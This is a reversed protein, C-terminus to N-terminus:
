TMLERVVGVSTFILRQTASVGKKTACHFKFHYVYILSILRSEPPVLQLRDYESPRSINKAIFQVLVILM